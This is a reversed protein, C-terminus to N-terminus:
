DSLSYVVLGSLLKPEFWTTKPPMLENADSIAMLEEVSVHYLAFAVQWEKSDVRKELEKLGRIGGVFEIREDQRLDGINLVPELIHKTLVTVDLQDAPSNGLAIDSKAKLSYWHGDLYAAFTRREKPKAADADAAPAVDFSVSLKNLFEDPTLGNLDRVIRNYDIIRVQTHPFVVAMFSLFGEDGKVQTGAKAAADRRLKGVNFASHARHHGDAVYFADIKEFSEQLRSILSDDDIVWFAHRVPIGSSEDVFDCEAEKSSTVSEVVKTIVDSARYTLFVPGVNASQTDVLRTRDKEKKERTLEHKKILGNGFDDVSAGGVIGYQQNGDMEQMYVYYCPKPDKQLWGNSIFKELNKKGTEYVIDAYPDTSAPLDIEPKNVHLFSRDKGEAMSRAEETNLTDYAPGVVEKALDRPPRYGQIPRFQVM